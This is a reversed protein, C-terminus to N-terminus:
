IQPYGQVAEAGPSICRIPVVGEPRYHVCSEKPDRVCKKVNRSEKFIFCNNCDHDTRFKSIFDMNDEERGSISWRFLIGKNSIIVIKGHLLKKSLFAVKMANEELFIGLSADPKGIKKGCSVRVIRGDWLRYKKPGDLMIMEHELVGKCSIEASM